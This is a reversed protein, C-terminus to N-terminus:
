RNQFPFEPRRFQSGGQSMRRRQLGPKHFFWTRFHFLSFFNFKLVHHYCIIKHCLLWFWVNVKGTDPCVPLDDTWSNTESVEM